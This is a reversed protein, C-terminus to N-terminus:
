VIYFPTDTVALQTNKLWTINAPPRAYADCRITVSDGQTVNVNGVLVVVSRRRDDATNVRRETYDAPPLAPQRTIYQDDAAAATLEDDTHHSRRRIVPVAICVCVCVCM